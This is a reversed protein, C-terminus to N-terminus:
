EDRVHARTLDDVNVHTCLLDDVRQGIQRVYVSYDHNGILIAHVDGRGAAVLQDGDVFVGALYHKAGRGVGIGVPQGVVGNPM